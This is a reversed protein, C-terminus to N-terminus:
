PLSNLKRVMLQGEGSLSLCLGAFRPTEEFRATTLYNQSFWWEAYARDIERVDKMSEALAEFAAQKGADNM